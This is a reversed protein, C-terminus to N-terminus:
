DLPDETEINQGMRLRIPNLPDTISRGQPLQIRGPLALATGVTANLTGDKTIGM